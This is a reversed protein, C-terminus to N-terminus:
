WSGGGGGSFGGGAFGSSAPSSSISNMSTSYSRSFSSNLLVYFMWPSDRYEGDYWEPRCKVRNEFKKSLSNEKHLAIAYPMLHDFTRSDRDECEEIYRRFALCKEYINHGYITKQEIHFAMFSGVAISITSVLIAYIVDPMNLFTRIALFLLFMTVFLWVIGALSLVTAKRNRSWYSHRTQYKSGTIAFTFFLVVLLLSFILSLLGPFKAALLIGDAVALVLLAILLIGEAINSEKRKLRKEGKEYEREYEKKVKSHYEDQYKSEALFTFTVEDKKFVSDFLTREIESSDSSLDRLRRITYETDKKGEKAEIRVYDKEGWYMLMASLDREPREAGDELIFRVEMPSLSEPPNPSSEQSYPLDRGFIFWIILTVLLLSVSIIIAINLYVRSNDSKEILGTWYGEDMEVRLTLAGNNRLGSQIGTITRYDESLTFSSPVISGEEGITVWIRSSDIKKPFVVKYTINWIPTDWASSVLNYYFEDFTNYLDRGIAYDYEIIYEQEGSVLKDEDGLYFRYYGDEKDEEFTTNSEFSTVSAKVPDAFNGDPNSFRYQIDRYIGHSSTTFDCLIREMVHMSYDENVNITIDYANVVFNEASLPLCLALAFLLIIAKRMKGEKFLTAYM